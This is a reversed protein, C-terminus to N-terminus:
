ERTAKRLARGGLTGRVVNERTRNKSIVNEKLWAVKARRITRM